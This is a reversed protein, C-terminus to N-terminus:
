ISSASSSSSDFEGPNPHDTTPMDRPKVKRFFYDTKSSLVYDLFRYSGNRSFFPEVPEEPLLLPTNGLKHALHCIGFGATAGLSAGGAFIIRGKNGLM